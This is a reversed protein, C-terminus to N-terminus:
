NILKDKMDNTSSTGVPAVKGLGSDTDKKLFVGYNGGSVIFDVNQDWDQREEVLGKRIKDSLFDQIPMLIKEEVETAIKEAEEKSTGINEINKEYLEGDELGVLVLLTETQLDNVESDDLLYKRGIEEAIGMWPLSNIAEQMERPLKAIEDKALQKLKDTM